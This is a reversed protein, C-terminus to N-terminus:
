TNIKQKAYNEVMFVSATLEESVDTLNHQVTRRYMGACLMTVARFDECKASCGIPRKYACLNMHETVHTNTHILTLATRRTM